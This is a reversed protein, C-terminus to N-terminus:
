LLLRWFIATWAGVHSLHFTNNLMKIKLNEYLRRELSM